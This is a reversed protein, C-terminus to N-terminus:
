NISLCGAATKPGECNVSIIGFSKGQSESLEVIQKCVAHIILSKGTGSPGSLLMDPIGENQLVPKLNDVVRGLQDDRGVIRDEDIITDSRVLDKNAFVGGSSETQLRDRISIGDGDGNTTDQSSDAPESNGEVTTQSSDPTDMEMDMSTSNDPDASPSERDKEGEPHNAGTRHDERGM